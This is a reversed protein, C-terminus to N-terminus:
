QLTVQDWRSTVWVGRTWSSTTALPTSTPTYDVTRQFVASDILGTHGKYLGPVITVPDGRKFRDCHGMRPSSRTSVRPPLPRTDTPPKTM